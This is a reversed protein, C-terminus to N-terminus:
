WVLSPARCSEELSRVNVIDEHNVFRGRQCDRPTGPMCTRFNNDYFITGEACIHCAPIARGNGCTIFGNCFEPHPVNWSEEFSVGEPPQQCLVSYKGFGRGAPQVPPIVPPRVPPRVPPVWPGVPLGGGPIPARCSDELLRVKVVDRHDVFRGRQCDRPTGRKCTRFNNDYFITGEACIQCAPIARGNGCTIFGNCFEPHPVNWSEEFSVGEPPQQCLPSYQSFFGGGQASVHDTNASLYALVLLLIPKPDQM